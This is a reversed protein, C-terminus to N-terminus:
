AANWGARDVICSSESQGLQFPTGYAGWTLLVGARMGTGGLTSVEGQGERGRGLRDGGGDGAGWGDADGEFEKEGAEGVAVEALVEGRGGVAGVRARV